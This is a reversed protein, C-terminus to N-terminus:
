SLHLKYNFEKGPKDKRSKILKEINRMMVKATFDVVHDPVGNPAQSIPTMDCQDNVYDICVYRFRNRGTKVAAIETSFWVMGSIEAIKVATETLPKLKYKKFESAKVHAYRNTADDWWCPIIRDFVRFVRFWGKKSDFFHPRVEKQLLFDDNPDFSRAKRIEYATGTANRVLGKQGYGQAPKIIFPPKLRAKQRKTLFVRKPQWKRVIITYPTNIGHESLRYHMQAKDTAARTYDPDNVVTAGADKAAYCIRSYIDDPDNYTAETDILLKLNLKRLLLGRLINKANDDYIWLFALGRNRCIDKVLKAFYCDQKSNWNIAIDYNRM